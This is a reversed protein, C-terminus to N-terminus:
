ILVRQTLILGSTHRPTKLAKSLGFKWSKVLFQSMGSKEVISAIFLGAIAICRGADLNRLVHSWIAIRGQVFDNCIIERFSCMFSNCKFCTFIAHTLFLSQIARLAYDIAAWSSKRTLIKSIYRDDKLFRLSFQLTASVKSKQIRIQILCEFAFLEFTWYFAVFDIRVRIMSAYNIECDAECASSSTLWNGM